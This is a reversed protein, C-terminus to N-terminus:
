AAARDEDPSMETVARLVERALAGGDASDEPTARIRVVVEDGDFEELAVHPAERTAVSLAEEVREQVEEPDIDQPLRARMDVGAPERIPRVSMTLATNNPVLVDDDGDRMTVYLLGHGVVTGEVDMGFGAFRVRDGVSFPRASLLVVGALINGFTQQAALGFVVATFSAGLALAGLEVGAIRLSVLLMGVIAVLRIVFGAVGAVGPELRSLLRPALANGLQRAFAWGVIVLLIATAIRVPEDVGFLRQRFQYLAIVGALLPVLYFLKRRARKARETAQARLQRAQLREPARPLRERFLHVGHAKVARLV